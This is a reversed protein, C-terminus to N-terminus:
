TLGRGGLLYEISNLVRASTPSYVCSMPRTKVSGMRQRINKRETMRSIYLRPTPERQITKMMESKMPATIVIWSDILIVFGRIGRKVM